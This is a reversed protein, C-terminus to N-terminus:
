QTKSWTGCGNSDFAVDTPSISVVVPGTPNDNAIIGPEGAGFASERAWYCGNGGQTQYTGPAINIGVAWTGDGFSTAQSGSTPLPSWTGCGQSTFGADTSLITVIAQGTPNDNTIVSSLSGSLDSSRDWYCGSAGQTIYTGPAIDKGVQWTGDSFTTAPGSAVTTTPAPTSTTVPAVSGGSAGTQPPAQTAAPASCASMILAASALGGKIFTSNM